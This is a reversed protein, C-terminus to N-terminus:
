QRGVFRGLPYTAQSQWREGDWVILEVEDVHCRLPLLPAMKITFATDGPIDPWGDSEQESDARGEVAILM